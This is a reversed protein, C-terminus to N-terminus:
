ARDKFGSPSGHMAGMCAGQAIVHELASVLAV